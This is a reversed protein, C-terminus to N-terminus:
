MEDFQELDISKDNLKRVCERVNIELWLLTEKEKWLSYTRGVYLTILHSLAQPLTRPSMFYACRNVEDDAEVCCKDLLEKLMSPFLMLAEQLLSDSRELLEADGKSKLFTALAISFRFNPLLYLRYHSSTSWQNYM